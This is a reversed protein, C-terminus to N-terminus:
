RPGGGAAVAGTGPRGRARGAWSELAGRRAAETLLRRGFAEATERAAVYSAAQTTGDAHGGVLGLKVEHWGDQYRVMVGDTEVLLQGPM